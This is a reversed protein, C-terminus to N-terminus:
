QGTLSALCGKSSQQIFGNEITEPTKAPSKAARTAPPVAVDAAKEFLVTGSEAEILIAHPVSTQYGGGSPAPAALVVSAVVAAFFGAFAGSIISFPNM